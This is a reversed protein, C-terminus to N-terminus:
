SVPAKKIIIRSVHKDGEIPEVTVTLGAVKSLAELKRKTADIWDGFYERREDSEDFSGIRIEGGPAVVRVLEDYSAELDQEMTLEGRFQADNGPLAAVVVVLDYAQDAYPLKQMLAKKVRPEIHTRVAPSWQVAQLRKTAYSLRGGDVSDVQDNIDHKLCYSAFDCGSAGVDLIKKGRVDHETLGLVKLYEEYGGKELFEGYEALSMGTKPLQEKLFLEFEEKEEDHIDEQTCGIESHEMPDYGLKQRFLTDAALIGTTVAEFIIPRDPESNDRYLYRSVPQEQATSDIPKMMESM